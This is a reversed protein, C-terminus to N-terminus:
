SFVLRSISVFVMQCFIRCMAMVMRVAMAVVSPVVEHMPSQHRCLGLCGVTFVYVTFLLKNQIYRYVARPIRSVAPTLCLFLHPYM